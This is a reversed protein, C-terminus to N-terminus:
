LTPMDPAQILMDDVIKLLWAQLGAVAKDTRCCFEDGSTNLGMPAGLYRYRGSPLLFTTLKSSEEDLPVQFYGHIADIKAFFRSSPQVRKVLDAASPFPHMTRIVSKNLERYDTVLRLKKGGPKPVFHAPSCWATPGTEAVLVKSKVLEAVLKDAMAAFHMPVQRATTVSLPKVHGEKLHIKMKPGKMAGAAEDLTTGLVDAFKQKMAELNQPVETRDVSSRGAAKDCSRAGAEESGAVVKVAAAERNQPFEPSIIGLKQLDHWSLLVDEEEMDSSVIGDVLTERGNLTAFLKITGQCRMSGGSANLLRLSSDRHPRLGHRRILAFSFITRTAGTDPTAAFTFGRNRQEPTFRVDVKLTPANGGVVETRVARTARAMRVRVAATRSVSSDSSSGDSSSEERKAQSKRAKSRHRDDRRRDDRGRDERGRDERAEERPAKEKEKEKEKKVLAPCLPVGRRTKSFHGRRNCSNCNREAAPCPRGEEHERNGCKGCSPGAGSQGGKSKSRKDREQRSFKASAGSSEGTSAKLNRRAVEYDAAETILAALTPSKLELLKEKLKADVLGSMIRFIYIEDLTLSALDAENGKQRLKAVYDSFSQGSAQVYRFYDLRRTFVPYTVAFRDELVAMCSDVDGYVPTADNIEERITTDLEADLYSLFFAQQDELAARELNSTSYFSRFRRVWLRMEAPTAERTLKDPQLATQVKYSTGARPAPAAVLPPAAPKRVQALAIQLKQNYDFYFADVEDLKSKAEAELALDEALELYGECIVDYHRRLAAILETLDKASEASPNAVAFPILKQAKTCVRTFHGKHARIKNKIGLVVAAAAAVAAADAMVFFLLLGEFVFV